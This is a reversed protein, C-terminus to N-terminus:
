DKGNYIEKTLKDLWKASRVLGPKFRIFAVGNICIWVRGDEEIQIGFDCDMQSTMPMEVSLSGRLHTEPIVKLKKKSM